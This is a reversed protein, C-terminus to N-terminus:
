FEGWKLIDVQNSSNRWFSEVRRYLADLQASTLQKCKAILTEQDVGWKGCVGEYLSSDEIQAIISVTSYRFQGDIRTGNLMDAFCAWEQPTFRGRLENMSMRELVSLKELGDVIQQNISGADMLPNESNKQMEQYMTAPIRITINKTEMLQAKTLRRLSLLYEAFHLCFRKCIASFCLNVILNPLTKGLGM